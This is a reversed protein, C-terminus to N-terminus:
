EMGVSQLRTPIVKKEEQEVWHEILEIQHIYNDPKFNIKLEQAKYLKTHVCEQDDPTWAMTPIESREKCAKMVRRYQPTDFISDSM